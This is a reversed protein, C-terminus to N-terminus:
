SEVRRPTNRETTKSDLPLARGGPPGRQLIRESRVARRDMGVLRCNFVSVERRSSRSVIDTSKLAKRTGFIRVAYASKSAVEGVMIGIGAMPLAQRGCGALGVLSVLSLIICTYSFHLRM